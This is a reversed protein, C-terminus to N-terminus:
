GSASVIRLRYTALLVSEAGDIGYIELRNEGLFGSVRSLGVSFSGEPMRRLGGGSWHVAGYSDIVHLHYDAFSRFDGLDLILVLENTGPPLIVEEIGGPTRTGGEAVPLLDHVLVNTEPMALRAVQQRLSMAWYGIGLVATFFVAALTQFYRLRRALRPVGPAGDELKTAIADWSSAKAGSRPLSGTALEVEPFAELDLITCICMPCVALHRRLSQRADDDLEGAHYGLLEEPTPHHDIEQRAEAAVARVEEAWPDRKEEISM